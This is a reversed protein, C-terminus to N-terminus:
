RALKSVLMDRNNNTIVIPYGKNGYYRCGTYVEQIPAKGLTKNYYKCQIYFYLTTENISIEAIIDVGNDDKGTRKCNFGACKLLNVVWLEYDMGSKCGIPEFGNEFNSM